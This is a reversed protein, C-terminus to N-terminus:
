LIYRIPEQTSRSASKNLRGLRWLTLPPEAVLREDNAVCRKRM